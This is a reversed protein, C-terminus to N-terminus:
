VLVHASFGRAIALELDDPTDIDTALGTRRVIQLASGLELQHRAMSDAGFAFAFGDPLSALALANTGLEHRDPAMAAGTSGAAALLAEIDRAGVLPLDGHIVLRGGPITAPLCDLEANLGRGHDSAHRTPWHPVSEPSLVVIETIAAVAGLQAIVHGAMQLCLQYRAEPSLVPALRSKCDPGLKLPVVATWRIM